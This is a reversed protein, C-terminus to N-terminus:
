RVEVMTLTDRMALQIDTAVTQKVRALGRDAAEAFPVGDGLASWVEVFPRTYVDEYSTGNRYGAIVKDADVGWVERGLSRAIYAQTIAVESKQAAQVLPIVTELWRDLTSKQYTPLSNWVREVQSVTRDRLQKNLEIHREALKSPM